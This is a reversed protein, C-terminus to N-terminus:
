CRMLETINLTGHVSHGDNKAGGHFENLIQQHKADGMKPDIDHAFVMNLHNKIISLQKDSISNENSLELFGQLWYVFNVTTM